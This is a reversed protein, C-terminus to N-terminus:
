EIWRIAIGSWLVLSLVLALPSGLVPDMLRPEAMDTMEVIDGFSRAATPAPTRSIHQSAPVHV